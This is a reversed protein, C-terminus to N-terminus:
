DRTRYASQLENYLWARAYAWEREVTRLPVDLANAAEKMTLGAFFRLEVLKAAQEDHEALRSLADDLAVLNEDSQADHIQDLHLEVRAHDGGRKATKKRRANEILIRRMAKGAARFFHGKSKWTQPDHQGVLRVYAEHVLATPQLTHGPRESNLQRAAERRLEIYVLPLLEDTASDEGAEISSLIKDLEPM